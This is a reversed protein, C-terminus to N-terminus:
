YVIKCTNAQCVPRASRSCEKERSVTEPCTQAMMKPKNLSNFDPIYNENIAVVGKPGVTCGCPDKDVILCDSDVKCSYIRRIKAKRQAEKEAKATEEKQQALEKVDLYPM